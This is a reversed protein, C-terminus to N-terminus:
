FDPIWCSGFFYQTPLLFMATKSKLLAVSVWRADPVNRSYDGLIPDLMHPVMQKAFMDPDETKDVFIEILKLAARKVSRMSKVSHTKAEYPGGNAIASSILESYVRCGVHHCLGHM